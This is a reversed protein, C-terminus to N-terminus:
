GANAILLKKNKNKQIKVIIIPIYNYRMTTKIQLERIFFTTSCLKVHKNAM